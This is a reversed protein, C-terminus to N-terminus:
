YMLLDDVREKHLMLFTYTEQEQEFDQIFNLFKYPSQSSFVSLIQYQQPLPASHLRQENALTHGKPAQRFALLYFYQTNTPRPFDPAFNLHEGV